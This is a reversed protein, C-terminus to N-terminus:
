VITFEAMLRTVPIRNGPNIMERDGAATLTTVIAGYRFTFIRLVDFATIITIIAVGSRTPTIRNEIMAADRATADGTMISINGRALVRRVDLRGLITIVTVAGYAPFRNALHVVICDAATTVTAVIANDRFSFIRGMDGGAALAIGTVIGHGPCGGRKVVRSGGCAAGIAM